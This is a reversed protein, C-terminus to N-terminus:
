EAAKPTPAPPAKAGDNSEAETQPKPEASTQSAEPVADPKGIAAAILRGADEPDKAMGAVLIDGLTKNLVSASDPKANPEPEAKVGPKPASKPEPAPEATAELKPGGKVDYKPETKAGGAKAEPKPYDKANPQPNTKADLKAPNPKPVAKTEMKTEAKIHDLVRYALLKVRDTVLFWALAYGWVFAAWGWGLPAMLLGYVAILTAIAQTGFVAILL